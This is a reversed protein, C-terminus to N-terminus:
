VVLLNLSADINRGGDTAKMLFPKKVAWWIAHHASQGASIRYGGEDRSMTPATKRIWNAEKIRHSDFYLLKTIFFRTKINYGELNILIKM